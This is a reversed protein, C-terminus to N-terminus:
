TCSEVHFHVLSFHLNARAKDCLLSESLFFIIHVINQYRIRLFNM